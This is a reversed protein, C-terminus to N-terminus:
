HGTRRFAREKPSQRPSIEDGKKADHAIEQERVEFVAIGAGLSGLEILIVM